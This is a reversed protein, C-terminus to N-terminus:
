PYVQQCNVHKKTVEFGNASKEFWVEYSGVRSPPHFNASYSGGGRENLYILEATEFGDAAAQAAAFREASWAEYRTNLYWVAVGTAALLVALGATSVFDLLVFGRRHRNRM